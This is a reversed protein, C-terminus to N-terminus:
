ISIAEVVPLHPEIARPGQNLLFNRERWTRHARRYWWATDGPPHRDRPRDAKGGLLGVLLKSYLREEAGEGDHQPVHGM